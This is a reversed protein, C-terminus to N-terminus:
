HNDKVKVMDKDKLNINIDLVNENKDNPSEWKVNVISNNYFDITYKNRNNPSQPYSRRKKAMIKNYCM